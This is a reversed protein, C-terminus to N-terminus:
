EDLVLDILLTRQLPNFNDDSILTLRTRGDADTWAAVAEMNDVGSEDAWEAIETGADIGLTEDPTVGYRRLRINTGSIPSFHRFLVYLAGDPGFAAGTVGHPGIPPLTTRAVPQLDGPRFLFVPHGGDVGLGELQDEGIALLLACDQPMAALAEIGANFPLVRFAEPAVTRTVNGAIPHRVIRHEREFAIAIGDCTAALAESDAIDGGGRIVTGGESVPVLSADSLGAETESPAYAADLWAARDSVALLRGDRVLLGSFGGFGDAEASLEWAAIQRLGTLEAPPLDIAEARITIPTGPADTPPALPQAHALVGALGLLAPAWRIM